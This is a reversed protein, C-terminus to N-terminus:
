GTPAYNAILVDKDFIRRKGKWDMMGGGCEDMVLHEFITSPDHKPIPIQAHTDIRHTHVWKTSIDGEAIGRGALLKNAGAVAQEKNFYIPASASYFTIHTPNGIQIVFQFMFRKTKRKSM